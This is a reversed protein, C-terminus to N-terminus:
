GFGALLDLIYLGGTGSGDATFSGDTLSDCDDVYIQLIRPSPTLPARGGAITLYTKSQRTVKTVLKCPNSFTEVKVAFHVDTHSDM